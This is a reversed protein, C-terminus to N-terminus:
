IRTRYGYVSKAGPTIVLAGVRRAVEDRKADENCHCDRPYFSVAISGSYVGPTRQFAACRVNRAEEVTRIPLLLDGRAKSMEFRAM